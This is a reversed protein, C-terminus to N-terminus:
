SSVFFEGVSSREAQAGSGGVATTSSVVHSATTKLASLISKKQFTSGRLLFANTEPHQWVIVPFRGHKHSPAVRALRSKTFQQLHLSSLHNIVISSVKCSRM